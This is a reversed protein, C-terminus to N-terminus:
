QRCRFDCDRDDDHLNCGVEDEQEYIKRMADQYLKQMKRSNEKREQLIYVVYGILFTVVIAIMGSGIFLLIYELITM